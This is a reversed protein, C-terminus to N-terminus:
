GSYLTLTLQWHHHLFTVFLVSSFSRWKKQLRKMIWFFYICILTIWCNGACPMRVNAMVRLYQVFKVAFVNLQMRHNQLQFTLINYKHM